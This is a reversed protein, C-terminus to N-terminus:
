RPQLRVLVGYHDSPWAGSADARDLIIRAEVVRFADRPFFVHDIRLPAHGAHPNLTSREPADVAQVVISVDEAPIGHGSLVRAVEPPLEAANAGFATTFIAALVWSRM